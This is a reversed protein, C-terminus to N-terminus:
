GSNTDFKSIIGVEDVSDFCEACSKTNPVCQKYVHCQAKNLRYLLTILRREKDCICNTIEM